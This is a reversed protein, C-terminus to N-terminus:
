DGICHLRYRHGCQGHPHYCSPNRMRHGLDVSREGGARGGGHLCLGGHVRFESRERGAEQRGEPRREQRVQLYAARPARRWVCICWAASCGCAHLTPSGKPDGFAAAARRTAESHREPRRSRRRRCRLRRSSSMTPLSLRLRRSMRMQRSPPRQFAATKWRLHRPHGRHGGERDKDEYDSARIVREIDELRSSGGISRIVQSRPERNLGYKRMFLHGLVLAPFVPRLRTHGAELKELSRQMRRQAREDDGRQTGSSLQSGRPSADKMKPSLEEVFSGATTPGKSHAAKQSTGGGKEDVGAAAAASAATVREATPSEEESSTVGPEPEMKQRKSTASQAAKDAAILSELRRLVTKFRSIFATPGEGSRHKLHFLFEDVCENLETEPLYKYHGDLAELVQMWGNESRLETVSLHETARWAEGTLKTLIRPGALRM